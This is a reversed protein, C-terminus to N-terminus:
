DLRELVVVSGSFAIFCFGWILPHRSYDTLECVLGGGHSKRRPQILGLLFIVGHKRVLVGSLAPNKTARHYGAYLQVHCCRHHCFTDHFINAFLFYNPKWLENGSEFMPSLLFAFRGVLHEGM